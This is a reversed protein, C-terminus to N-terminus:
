VPGPADPVALRVVAQQEQPGDTLLVVVGELARPNGIGEGGGLQVAAQPVVQLVAKGGPVVVGTHPLNKVSKVAPVLAKVPVKVCGPRRRPGGCISGEM